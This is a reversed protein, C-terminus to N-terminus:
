AGTSYLAAKYEGASPGYDFYCRMEIGLQHFNAEATEVVPTQRGNLFAVDVLKFADNFLWYKTGSLFPSTIPELINRMVNNRGEKSSAGTIHESQYINKATLFNSPSCLIRNPIAGLPNGDSDKIALALAYASALNALSLAGSTNAGYHSGTMSLTGFVDKNITRGAMQGFREPLLSLVGLDDNIIDERTIGM